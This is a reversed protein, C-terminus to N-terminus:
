DQCVKRGNTLKYTGLAETSELWTKTWPGRFSLVISTGDSSVKHFNNRTTIIPIISPKHVKTPKSTDKFEETLQGKLLWSISHFAHTHYAERSTGVFKLVVISFLPKLEVLWYAWANSLLGGDKNVELFRM